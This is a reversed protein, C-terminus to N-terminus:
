SGVIIRGGEIKFNIGSLELIKLVHSVNSNRSIKGHYTYSPIPGKFAVDIAYWRAIQRMITQIDAEDFQFMGNKWAIIEDIDLDNEVLLKNGSLVAQQGPSILVAGNASYIKVSGELLTTKVAAEDSYSNVNFHTGLVQVTQNFTKVNFPKAKNKTVEFYAEGTLEVTRDKGNFETPFKLSSAANLWVKTGDALMLQYQGGKPTTITNYSVQSLNPRTAKYSLMSDTKVVMAGAQTVLYGNKRNNLTVISGNSLTLIAKNGGPAIDHNKLTNDAIQAPTHSNYLLYFIGASVFVLVAAARIFTRKYFSIAPKQKAIIRNQIGEKLYEELDAIEQHTLQDTSNAEESFLEYYQELLQIEAPSATGNLYKKRLELFEKKLQASM